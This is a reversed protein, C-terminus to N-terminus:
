NTKGKYLQISGSTTKINLPIKGNKYIYYGGSTLVDFECDFSGSGENINMKMGSSEPLTLNINDLMFGPYSKTLNRIELANM